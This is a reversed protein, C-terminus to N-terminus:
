GPPFGRWEHTARVALFWGQYRRFTSHLTGSIRWSLARRSKHILLSWNVGCTRPREASFRPLLHRRAAGSLTRGRFTPRELPSSSCRMLNESTWRYEGWGHCHLKAFCARGLRKISNAPPVLAVARPDAQDSEQTAVSDRGLSSGGEAWREQYGAPTPEAPAYRCTRGLRQLETNRRPLEEPFVHLRDRSSM